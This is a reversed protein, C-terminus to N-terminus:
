RASSIKLGTMANDSKYKALIGPTTKKFRSLIKYMLATHLLPELKAMWAGVVPVWINLDGDACLIAADVVILFWCVYFVVVMKIGRRMIAHANSGSASTSVNGAVNDEKKKVEIYATTYLYSQVIISFVFMGFVLGAQFSKYVEEKVCCYLGKYPGFSDEVLFAIAVSVGIVWAILNGSFVKKHSPQKGTHVLDYTLYAITIASGNMSIVATVACFAYFSCTVSAEPIRQHILISFNEVLYVTIMLVGPVVLFCWSLLIANEFIKKRYSFFSFTAFALVVISFLM